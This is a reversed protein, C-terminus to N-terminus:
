VLLLIILLAGITAVIVSGIVGGGYDREHGVGHALELRMAPLRIPNEGHDGALPHEALLHEGPPEGRQQSDAPHSWPAVTPLELRGYCYESTTDSPAVNKWAFQFIRGIM